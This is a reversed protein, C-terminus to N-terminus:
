KGPRLPDQRPLLSTRVVVFSANFRVQLLEALSLPARCISGRLREQGMVPRGPRRGRLSARAEHPVVEHGTDFDFGRCAGSALPRGLKATGDDRRLHRLAGRLLFRSLSAALVICVAVADEHWGIPGRAVANTM